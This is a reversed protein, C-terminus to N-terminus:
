AARKLNGLEPNTKALVRKLLSAAQMGVRMLSVVPNPGRRPRKQASVEGPEPKENIIALAERRKEPTVQALAERTEVVVEHLLEAADVLMGRARDDDLQPYKAKAAAVAARAEAIKVAGQQRIFRLADDDLAGGVLAPAPPTEDAADPLEAAVPSDGLGTEVPNTEPAAAAVPAAEVADTAPALDAPTMAPSATEAAASEALGGARALKARQKKAKLRAKREAKKM